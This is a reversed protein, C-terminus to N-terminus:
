REAESRQKQKCEQCKIVVGSRTWSLSKGYRRCKPEMTNTDDLDPNRVRPLFVLRM